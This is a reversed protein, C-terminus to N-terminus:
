LETFRYAEQVLSLPSFGIRLHGVAVMPREVPNAAAPIAIDSIDVKFSLPNVKIEGIAISKNLNTKVWDTAQSRILGPALYFGALLYVGFLLVFGAAWAMWGRRRLPTQMSEQALPQSM